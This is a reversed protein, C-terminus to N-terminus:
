VKLEQYFDRLMQHNVIDTTKFRFEPASAWSISEDFFHAPLRRNLNDTNILDGDFTSGHARYLEGLYQHLSELSSEEGIQAEIAAYDVNFDQYNEVAEILTKYAEDYTEFLLSNDSNLYDRGGGQMDNKVVVPLGCLQAEKIVKCVGEKQSFITFVKSQNYLHSLFTYSFGQFGLDPDTKIITFREREQASFMSFYDDLISSYYSKEPEDRNSAIVFLVNYKYGQDYIKRIQQMLEPYKKKHDSKAVCIIDWYKPLDRNKMVVPTFSASSLPIIFPSGDFNCTGPSALHFDVWPPTRVYDFFFGWHIGIFYQSRVKEMMRATERSRVLWKMKTKLSRHADKKSFKPLGMRSNLFGMEKHTFTIIGKGESSPHKFIHAM